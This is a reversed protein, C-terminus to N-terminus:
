EPILVNESAYAFNACVFVRCSRADGFREVLHRLKRPRNLLGGDDLPVLVHELLTIFARRKM